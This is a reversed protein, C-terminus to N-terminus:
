GTGLYHKKRQLRIDQYFYRYRNTFRPEVYYSYACGGVILYSVKNKNLLVIIRQFGIRSENKFVFSTERFVQLMDLKEEPLKSEWYIIDNQDSDKLRIKISL